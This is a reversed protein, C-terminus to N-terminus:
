RGRRATSIIGQLFDTQRASAPKRIDGHVFQVGIREGRRSIDLWYCAGVPEETTTHASDSRENWKEDILTQFVVLGSLGHPNRFGTVSDVRSSVSGDPGDASFPHTSEDAAFVQFTDAGPHFEGSVDLLSLASFDHFSIRAVPDYTATRTDERALIMESQGSSDSGGFLSYESAYDFSVDYRPNYYSKRSHQPHRPRSAAGAFAHASLLMALLLVILQRM